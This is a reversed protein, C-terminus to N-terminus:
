VKGQKHLVEAHQRFLRTLVLICWNEAKLCEGAMAASTDANGSDDANTTTDCHFEATSEEIM